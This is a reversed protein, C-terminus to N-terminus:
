FLIARMALVNFHFPRCLRYSVPSFALLVASLLCIIARMASSQSLGKSGPRIVFWVFNFGPVGGFVPLENVAPRLGYSSFVARLAWVFLSCVNVLLAIKM